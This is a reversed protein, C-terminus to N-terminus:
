YKIANRAQKPRYWLDSKAMNRLALDPIKRQEGNRDYHWVPGGRPEIQWIWEIADGRMFYLLYFPDGECVMPFSFSIGRQLLKKRQRSGVASAKLRRTEKLNVRCTSLADASISLTRITPNRDSGSYRHRVFDSLEESFRSLVRQVNTATPPSGQLMKLDIGVSDPECLAFAGTKFTALTCEVFKTEAPLKEIWRHYWRLAGIAAEDPGSATCISASVFLLVLQRLM